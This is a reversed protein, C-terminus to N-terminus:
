ELSFAQEFLTRGCPTGALHISLRPFTVLRFNVTAQCTSAGVPGISIVTGSAQGMFTHAAVGLLIQRTATLAFNPSGHMELLGQHTMWTCGEPTLLANVEIFGNGILNTSRTVDAQVRILGSRACALEGTMAGPTGNLLIRDFAPLPELLTRSRECAPLVLLSAVFLSRLRTIRFRM